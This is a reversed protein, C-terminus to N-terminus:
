RVDLSYYFSERRASILLQTDILPGSLDLLATILLRVSRASQNFYCSGSRRGYRASIEYCPVSTSTGYNLHPRRPYLRSSGSSPIPSNLLNTVRLSPGSMYLDETRCLHLGQRLYVIDFRLCLQTMMSRRDGERPYTYRRYKVDEWVDFPLM